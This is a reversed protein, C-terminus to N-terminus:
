NSNATSPLATADYGVTLGLTSGAGLMLQRADANGLLIFQGNGDTFGTHKDGFKASYPSKVTTGDIKDEGGHHRWNAENLHKQTLPTDKNGISIMMGAALATLAPTMKLKM